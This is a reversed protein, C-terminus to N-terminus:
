RKRAYKKSLVKKTNEDSIVKKTNEDSIVKKVNESTVIKKANETFVQNAYEEGAWRKVQNYAPLYWDNYDETCHADSAVFQALNLTIVNKAFHKAEKGYAGVISGADIQVLCGKEIFNIFSDFNRAFVRNREPHALIPIIKENHLEHLLKGCYM